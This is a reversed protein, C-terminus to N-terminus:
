HTDTALSPELLLCSEGLCGPHAIDSNQLRKRAGLGVLGLAM